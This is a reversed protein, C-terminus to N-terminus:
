PNGRRNDQTLVDILRDIRVSLRTTESTLASLKEELRTVRDGDGARRDVHREIATVRQDVRAAWWIAAASQLIITVILAIPIRKDLHWNANAPDHIM